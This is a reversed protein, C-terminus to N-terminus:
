RIVPHATAMRKDTKCGNSCKTRQLPSDRIPKSSEASRSGLSTRHRQGVLAKLRHGESEKPVRRRSRENATTTRVNYCWDASADVTEPQVSVAKGFNRLSCEWIRVTDKLGQRMQTM